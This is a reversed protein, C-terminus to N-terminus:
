LGLREVLWQRIDAIEPMCVEHAMAYEHWRTQHGAAQMLDHAQRGMSLPLVEDFRGHAHFVSLPQLVPHDQLLKDLDPGYTSLAMVGALPLQSSVATCLVVAGGKSM